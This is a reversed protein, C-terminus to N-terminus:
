RAEAKAGALLGGVVAGGILAGFLLVMSWNFARVLRNLEADELARYRKRRLLKWLGYGPVLTSREAALFAQPHHDILRDRTKKMLWFCLFWGAVMGCACLISFLTLLFEPM